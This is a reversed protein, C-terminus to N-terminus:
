NLRASRVHVVSSHVDNLQHGTALTLGRLASHAGPGNLNVLLNVRGTRAGSQLLAHQYKAGAAVDVQVTDIHVADNSQEQIYSHELVADKELFVRTVSNTWYADVGMFHQLVRVSAGAGVYIFLSPHSATMATPAAAVMDTSSAAPVVGSSACFVHIPLDVSVGAPVHVCAVDRLSAQNLAAFTFAGLATRADASQEPLPARLAAQVMTEADCGPQMSLLSGVAVSDPLGSLDSRGADCVGNVLLLRSKSSSEDLGEAIASALGEEDAVNQSPPVLRAAALSSLDTRRWAEIKRSPFPLNRLQSTAAARAEDLSSSVLMQASSTWASEM